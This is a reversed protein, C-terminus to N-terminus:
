NQDKKAADQQQIPQQAVVAERPCDLGALLKAQSGLADFPELLLIRREAVLGTAKPFVRGGELGSGAALQAEDARALNEDDQFVGLLNRCSVSMQITNKVTQTSQRGSTNTDRRYSPKSGM